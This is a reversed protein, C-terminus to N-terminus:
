FGMLHEDYSDKFEEEKSNNGDDNDSGGVPAISDSVFNWVKSENPECSSSGGSKNEAESGSSCDIWATKKRAKAAEKGHVTWDDDSESM